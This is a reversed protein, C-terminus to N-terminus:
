SRAIRRRYAFFALVPLGIIVAAFTGPEPVAVVDADVNAVDLADGATGNTWVTFWVYGSGDVDETATPGGPSNATVTSTGLLTGPQGASNVSFINMETIEPDTSLSAPLYLMQFDYWGSSTIDTIPSSQGDVSVTVDTGTANLRFNHEAGYDTPSDSVNPMMDIWFSGDYSPVPAATTANIYVDVSQYLAQGPATSIGPGFLSYPGAGVGTEYEDDVNSIQTYGSDGPGGSSSTTVTM